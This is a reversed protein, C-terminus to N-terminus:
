IENTPKRDNHNSSYANKIVKLLWEFKEEFVEKTFYEFKSSITEKNKKLIEIALNKLLNNQHEEWKLKKRVERLLRQQYSILPMLEQSWKDAWEIEDKTKVIAAVHEWQNDGLQKVGEVLLNLEDNTWCNLSMKLCYVFYFGSLNM